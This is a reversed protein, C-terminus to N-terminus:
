TNASNENPPTFTIVGLESKHKVARLHDELRQNWEQENLVGDKYPVNISRTYVKGDSNTFTVIVSTENNAIIPATYAITM